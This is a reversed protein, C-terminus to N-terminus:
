PNEGPSSESQRRLRPLRFEEAAIWVFLAAPAAAMAGTLFRSAPNNGVALDIALPALGLILLRPYALIQECTRRLRPLLLLGAWFGAYLGLCRHCVALPHGWASFSREAKQHCVSTFFSYMFPWSASDHSKSLPALFVLALWFTVALLLIRYRGTRQPM